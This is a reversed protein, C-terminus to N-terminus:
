FSYRVGVNWQWPTKVNGSGGEARELDFYFHTDRGLNLNTGVGFEFWGGGIDERYERSVTGNTMSAKVDGDFDYLYSARAYVNGRSFDKGLSFGLRGVFSDMGNQHVRAGNETSYNVSDVHGWTLKVQPELWFKDMHFRKGYEGSFSFGNTSYDGSGIGLPTDYENKLHAYKAILDIFSGDDRLNSGYVAFSSNKTQGTGSHFTNDGDTYSFAGGLIWNDNLKKDYGMQYYNYQNKVGKFTAEGRAMRAWVGDDGKSDRIEGLRKNLDNNEQRWTILSLAALDTIARNTGNEPIYSETIKIDGDATNEVKYVSAGNIIGESGSVTSVATKGDATTVVKALTKVKSSDGALADSNYDKGEGQVTVDGTKTAHDALVVKNDSNATRVLGKNSVLSKAVILKNTGNGLDLSANQITLNDVKAEAGGTISATGGQNIALSSVAANSKGQQVFTSKNGSVQVSKANLTGGDTVSASGGNTINMTDKVDLTGGNEAIARAGGQVNLTDATAVAGSDATLSAGQTLEVNKFTGKSDKLSVTGADAKVTDAVLVVKNVGNATRVFGKNSVLSKAVTLKNTGNGLDLSANQITLNDVKAEAGGTISATGGQNIALSSVAANSKGQQVFTSKNGSIQVSKANLTSGKAVSASGGNTINMTDKVDLTGGNEAIARAGGQINLTDAAAVAGSDAALSAGQTLEVNKFTGKSDKLSVTGADAKVMDAAVESTGNFNVAGGNSVYLGSNTALKNDFTVSAEKGFNIKSNNVNLRGLTFDGAAEREVIVKSDDWVVHAIESGNNLSLDGVTLNPLKKDNKNNTVSLYSYDSSIHGVKVDADGDLDMYGGNIIDINKINAQTKGYFSVSSGEGSTSIPLQSSANERTEDAVVHIDGINMKSTIEPSTGENDQYTAADLYGGKSVYMNGLTVDPCNWIALASNNSINVDGTKVNAANTFNVTGYNDIYVDSTKVDAVKSFDVASNDDVHIESIDAKKAGDFRVTGHETAYIGTLVKGDPLKLGETGRVTVEADKGFYVGGVNSTGDKWSAQGWILAVNVTSGNVQLKGPQQDNVKGLPLPVNNEWKNGAYLTRGSIKSNTMTISANNAYAGSIVEADTINATSGEEVTFYDDAVKIAGGTMNLTSGGDIAVEGKGSPNTPNTPDDEFTVNNATLTSKNQLWAGNVIQSEITKSDGNMQIKDAMAGYTGSFGLVLALAVVKALRQKSKM